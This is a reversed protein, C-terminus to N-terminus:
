FPYITGLTAWLGTEEAAKDAYAGPTDVFTVLGVMDKNTHGGNPPRM